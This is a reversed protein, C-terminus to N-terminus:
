HKLEFFFFYHQYDFFTDDLVLFCFYDYTFSTNRRTKSKAKRNKLLEINKNKRLLLIPVNIFKFYYVWPIVYNLIMLYCSSYDINEQKDFLFFMSIFTLKLWKLLNKEIM